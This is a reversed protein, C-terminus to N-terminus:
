FTCAVNSLINDSEKLIYNVTVIKLTFMLVIKVLLLKMDNIKIIAYREKNAQGYLLSQSAVPRLMKLPFFKESGEPQLLGNLMEVTAAQKRAFKFTTQKSVSDNM